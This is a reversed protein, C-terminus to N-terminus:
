LQLQARDTSGDLPSTSVRGAAVVIQLLDFDVPGVFRQNKVARYGADRELDVEREHYSPYTKKLCFVAYSITIHSSNLRTSKRDAKWPLTPSYPRRSSRGASASRCCPSHCCRTASPWCSATSCRARPCIPPAPSSRPSSIPLADHLSLTASISSPTLTSM